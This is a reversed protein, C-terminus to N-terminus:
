ELRTTCLYFFSLFLGVEKVCVTVCIMSSIEYLTAGDGLCSIEGFDIDYVPTCFFIMYMVFCNWHLFQLLTCLHTLDSSSEFSKCILLSGWLVKM